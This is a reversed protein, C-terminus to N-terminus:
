SLSELGQLLLRDAKGGNGSLKKGSVLTLAEAHNTLLEVSQATLSENDKILQDTYAAITTILHYGFSGGGGKISHALEITTAKSLKDTTKNCLISIEAMASPIDNDKNQETTQDVISAVRLLVKSFDATEGSEEVSPVQGVPQHSTSSAGAHAASTYIEEGLCQDISKLLLKLEIPNGCVDNMGVSTYETINGTSIDATLAIIPINAKTGHMLHIAITAELGDMVPMRIDMLIVEFESSNLLEIACQGDQAIEVSLTLKNLIARIIHQNVTNNEAVLVKLPRSAVWKDLAVGKDKEIVAEKAPKCCITFWFASGIGKTSDGSIQGGMLKVLQRSISLGLGTGGYTRSTSSDAQTFAAFLKSQEEDTLGIGSETVRFRLRLKDQENPELKVAVEIRGSSTFKLGNSLFNSLVQGIRMSDAHIADPLDDDFKINLMLGKSAISPRFLQINDDLFSRLQFDLPSIELKGSELKSQGMIENLISMLNKGSSLISNAWNLQQPTLDTDFLLDSMGIVEAMPTRIGHSMAALFQSKTKSTSESHRKEQDLKKVLIELEKRVKLAENQSERVETVDRGVSQVEALIQNSDFLGHNIWEIIRSERTANVISNRHIRRTKEFSLQSLTVKVSNHEKPSIYQYISPGLLENKGSSMFSIYSDNVFTLTGDLTLRSILDSQSHLLSSFRRESTQLEKMIKDAYSLATHNARSLFILLALLLSDFLIVALLFFLPLSSSKAVRFGLNSNIQFSWQRGHMEVTTTSEFLPEPDVDDISDDYLLDDNDRISVSLNRKQSALTGDLLKDMIFPANTVGLISEKRANVSDPKLGGKYFHAYFLFGPTKKADQALTIPGAVQTLELNSDKKIAAYRNKEFAMDLGIAKKNPGAPEIYTIPWFESKTHEPHLGFNPRWKQESALYPQLEEPQINFIVGIGNIGPDVKDIKLSNSYKFWQTYSIEGDLSDILSAGALLANEYLQMRENILGIVHNTGRLFHEEATKASQDKSIYWAALTSTLALLIMIWHTLHMRSAYELQGRQKLLAGTDNQVESAGSDKLLLGDTTGLM